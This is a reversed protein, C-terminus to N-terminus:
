ISTTGACDSSSAELDGDFDTMAVLAFWRDFHCWEVGALTTWPEAGYIPSRPTPRTV